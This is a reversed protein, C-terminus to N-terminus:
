LTVSELRKEVGGFFGCQKVGQVVLADPVNMVNLSYGTEALDTEFGAFWERAAEISTFGYLIHRQFWVQEMGDKSPLPHTESLNHASGLLSALAKQQATRMATMRYPGVGSEDEVRYILM